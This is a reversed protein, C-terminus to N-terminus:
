RPLCMPSADDVADLALMEGEARRLGVPLDPDLGAVTRNRALVDDGALGHRSRRLVRKADLFPPGVRLDAGVAERELRRCAAFCTATASNGLSPRLAPHRLDRSSFLLSDCSLSNVRKESAPKTPRSASNEPPSAPSSRCVTGRTSRRPARRGAASASSSHRRQAGSSAAPPATPGRRDDGPCRHPRRGATHLHDVGVACRCASNSIRPLQATFAVSLSTADRLLTPRSLACSKLLEGLRVGGNAPM